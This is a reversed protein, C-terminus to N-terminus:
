RTARLLGRAPDQGSFDLMANIERNNVDTNGGLNLLTLYEHWRDMPNEILRLILAWETCFM